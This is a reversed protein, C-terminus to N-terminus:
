TKARNPPEAQRPRALLSQNDPNEPALEAPSSAADGRDWENFRQGHCKFDGGALRLRSSHDRHEDIGSRPLPCAEWGSSEEWDALQCFGACHYRSPNQGSVGM